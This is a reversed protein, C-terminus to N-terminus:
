IIRQFMLENKNLKTKQTEYKCRPCMYFKEMKSKSFEMIKYMKSNCEKCRM